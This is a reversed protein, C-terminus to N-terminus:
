WVLEFRLSAIHAKLSLVEREIAEKHEAELRGQEEREREKREKCLRRALPTEFARDRLMFDRRQAKIQRPTLGREPDGALWRGWDPRLFLRYREISVLYHMNM